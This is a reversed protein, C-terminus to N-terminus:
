SFHSLQIWALHLQPLYILFLQLNPGICSSEAAWILTWFLDFRLTQPAALGGPVTAVVPQGHHPAHGTTSPRVTTCGPRVATRRTTRAPQATKAHSKTKRCNKSQKQKIIGMYRSMKPVWNMGLVSGNQM